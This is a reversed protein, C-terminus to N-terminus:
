ADEPFLGMYFDYANSCTEPSEETEEVLFDVADAKTEFTKLMRVLEGIERLARDFADFTVSKDSAQYLKSTLMHPLQDEEMRKGAFLEGISIDLIGCLPEYLAPDPLCSGNEWKSVSKNTIQLMEALREQTLRKEKRCQAIFKGIHMRDM